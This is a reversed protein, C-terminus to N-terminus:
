SNSRTANFAARVIIPNNPFKEAMGILHSAFAAAWLLADDLYFSAFTFGNAYCEVFVESMTDREVFVGIERSGLMSVAAARALMLTAIRHGEIADLEVNKELEIPEDEDCRVILKVIM